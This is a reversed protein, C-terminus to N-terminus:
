TVIKPHAILYRAALCDVQYGIRARILKSTLVLISGFLKFKQSKEPLGMGNYSKNGKM